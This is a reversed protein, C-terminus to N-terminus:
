PKRQSILPSSPRARFALGYAAWYYQRTGGLKLTEDVLRLGLSTYQDVMAVRGTQGAGLSRHARGPAHIRSDRKLLAGAEAPHFNSGPRRPGNLASKGVYEVYQTRGPM